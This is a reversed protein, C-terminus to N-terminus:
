EQKAYKQAEEFEISVIKTVGKEQMTVGFITDAHRMTPKRHTIVIFQTYDSFKKLFEAFLNVNSDDLAAEIEDLVCFPMPKLKLISFLIAIATLAKEGGSLLNINMIKTKGPPQAFIEIGCELVDDTESTDLRLDGHGGGFLQSFVVKFNENIKEFATLFKDKMEGTLVNIIQMIDDYAKQIDDRQKTQEALREESEKLTEVALLNVPGLKEIDKKLVAIDHTVLEKDFEPDRYPTATSYTVNYEDLIHAQLNRIEIDINELMSENRVKKGTLSIINENFKIKDNDAANIESSITNKRNSYDEIIRKLEDIKAQDEKSFDTKISAQIQKLTDQNKKLQAVLELKTDEFEGKDNNLRFLDTDAQEYKAKESTLQINLQTIISILEDYEKNAESKDTNNIEKSSAIDNKKKNVIEELDNFRKLQEDINTLERKASDLDENHNKLEDTLTDHTNKANDYREKTLKVEYNLENIETIHNELSTKIDQLEQALKDRQTIFINVNKEYKEILAKKADIEQEQSLFGSVASKRSGGTIEGGRTFIDGDLTVIRFGQNYKKYIRTANDINNVVVTAGLLTKIVGAYKKDYSILDSALGYCGPEDLVGLYQNDIVAPRCSTLPRFTVRGYNKQKLYTILDSADREDEVIINQLAGGLAYEIAAEYEKPVNIINALVGLIKESINPYSNADQMLHKVADQYTAYSNRIQVLLDLKSKESTIQNNLVQINNNYGELSEESDKRNSLLENYENVLEKLKNDNKSFSSEYIALNTKADNFAISKENILSTLSSIRNEIMGKEKLFNSMNNNLSTLEELAETYSLNLIDVNKKQNSLEEFRKKAVELNKGIKLQENFSTEKNDSIQSISKITIDLQNDIETLEDSIRQIEETTYQIKQRVLQSEGSAATLALAENNKEQLERDISQSEIMLLEYRRAAEKYANNSSELDNNIQALKDYIAQKIEQNHEYNYLYLNIEKHKLDEKLENYRNATEAQKKLPGISREIESIIENATQLNLSTKELNREAEVRQARFKSIGAAEEFINRREEPKASLIEEVRGQGIISYGDKGIGTDHILNIIDKMRVKNHNIFYESDGSRDLKRTFIVEDFAITPFLKKDKNDFTLSVEAYSMSKRKETGAFIVDQMSKGRLQKARHEGLAWKIAEAVNSKGCGNPGIIATVGEQFPIEVKDAFSKFGKLEIKVFNPL